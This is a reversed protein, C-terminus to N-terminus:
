LGVPHHWGCGISFERAELVGMPIEIPVIMVRGNKCGQMFPVSHQDGSVYVAGSGVEIMAESAKSYWLVLAGSGLLLGPM